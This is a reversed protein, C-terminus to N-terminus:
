ANRMVASAGWSPGDRTNGQPLSNRGSVADVKTEKTLSLSFDRQSMVFIPPCLKRLPPAVQAYVLPTDTSKIRWNPSQLLLAYVSYVRHSVGMIEFAIAMM